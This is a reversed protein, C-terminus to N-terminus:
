DKLLKAQTYHINFQTMISKWIEKDHPQYDLMIDSNLHIM